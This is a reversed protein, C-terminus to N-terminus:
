ITRVRDLAGSAQQLATLSSKLSAETQTLAALMQQDYGKTSGTLEARVLQMTDANSKMFDNILRTQDQIARQLAAVQAILDRLSMGGGTAQLNDFADFQAGTTSLAGLRRVSDPNLWPPRTSDPEYTRGPDREPDYPSM